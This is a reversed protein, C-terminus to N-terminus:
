VPYVIGAWKGAISSEYLFILYKLVPDWHPPYIPIEEWSKGFEFYQMCMVSCNWQVNGVAQHTNLGRLDKATILM